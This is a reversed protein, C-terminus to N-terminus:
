PVVERDARAGRRLSPGVQQPRQRVSSWPPVPSNREAPRLLRVGFGIEGVRPRESVRPGFGGSRLCRDPGAGVGSLHVARDSGAHRDPYLEDRIDRPGGRAGAREDRDHGRGRGARRESRPGAGGHDGLSERLRPRRPRAFVPPVRRWSGSQGHRLRPGALEDVAPLRVGDDVQGIRGDRPLILQSGHISRTRAPEVHLERYRHVRPRPRGGKMFDNTTALARLNFCGPSSAPCMAVSRFNLRNLGTARGIVVCSIGSLPNQREANRTMPSVPCGSFMRIPCRSGEAGQSWTPASSGSRASAFLLPHISGEECRIIPSDGWAAASRIRFSCSPKGAEGRLPGNTNESTYPGFFWQSRSNM